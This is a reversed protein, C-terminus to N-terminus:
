KKEKKRSLAGTPCADAAELATKTLGQELSQDFPIGVVVDFGRGIFTLGLEERYKETIRICIGCKICKEPEYVVIEHQFNKRVLKRSPGAFRRQEAGYEDAYLRLKCTNPKRCDCHLCRAAEAMAEEHSFGLTMGGSPALRADQVSEKLYEPAEEPELRGFHSNFLRREGTIIEGSLEQHTRKAAEKGLAAARIAMKPAKDLPSILADFQKRLNDVEEEGIFTNMEFIVGSKRIRDIEQNLVAEPLIERSVSYRLAGGPQENQDFITCQFGAQQLYWAASLGYPGSGIIAINKNLKHTPIISEAPLNEQLHHDGAIRKLLCIAVPEDISKRRCAGECPAPCIRGLVSPLAIDRIVVDYAQRFEGAALHRNMLPIDMHAPCARQCPAECDGVHDSLLLDLATKRAERVEEDGTIIQMGEEARISCSPIMKGNREDKVVCIMCSAFHPLDGNHCMSPIIIGLMGAAEMLTTGPEVEIPQHDITLNIM